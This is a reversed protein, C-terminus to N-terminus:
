IKIKKISKIDKVYFAIYYGDETILINSEQQFIEINNKKLENKYENIANILVIDNKLASFVDEKKESLKTCCIIIDNNM